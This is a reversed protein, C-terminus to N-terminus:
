RRDSGSISVSFIATCAQSVVPFSFVRELFGGGFGFVIQSWKYLSKSGRLPRPQGLPFFRYYLTYIEFKSQTGTTKLAPICVVLLVVRSASFSGSAACYRPPMELCETRRKILRPRMLGLLANRCIRIGIASNSRKRDFHHFPGGLEFFEASGLVNETEGFTVVRLEFRFRFVIVPSTFRSHAM